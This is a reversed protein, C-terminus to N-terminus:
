QFGAHSEMPILIKLVANSVDLLMMIPSICLPTFVKSLVFSVQRAVSQDLCLIPYQSKWFCQKHGECSRKQQLCPQFTVRTQLRNVCGASDRYAGISPSANATASAKSFDRCKTKPQSFRTTM